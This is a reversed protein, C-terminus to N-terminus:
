YILTIMPQGCRIDGAVRDGSIVIAYYQDNWPKIDEVYYDGLLMGPRIDDTWRNMPVIGMIQKKDEDIDTISIVARPM